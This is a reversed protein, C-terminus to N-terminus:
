DRLAKVERALSVEENAIFLENGGGGLGIKMKAMYSKHNFTGKLEFGMPNSLQDRLNVKSHRLEHAVGQHWIHEFGLWDEMASDLDTEVISQFTEMGEILSSKGSGNNGIFVTLPTFKVAGSDRVAKFNELRFSNLALKTM